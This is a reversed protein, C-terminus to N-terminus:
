GTPPGPRAAGDAVATRGRRWDGPPVGVLKKFSRSFAAESEYGVSHAVAAVTMSRGALRRAALQMRWLTLYQMPPCGVLRAFRAALVTRSVGADKALADLTWNRQPEGHLLGLARGIAPDALGGLWGTGNAAGSALHRRLVEVFLLESLRLRLGEGGARERQAEELTLDVLRTLLDPEGDNQRRVHLLRPLAALLPNFPRMDCGLYGCVYRTRAAGGAGEEIVFPLRGAAMEGLFAVTAPADFEPPQDPASLLFHPDGHAILLVDGAAFRVRVGDPMVLWGEGELIIHYSVVHQAGPLVISAYEAVPPVEVGWPESAEVIFFLAGTLQVTRLVDSLPDIRSTLSAPAAM